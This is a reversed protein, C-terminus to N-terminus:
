TMGKGHCRGIDEMDWTQTVCFYAVHERKIFDFFDASRLEGHVAARMDIWLPVLYLTADHLVRERSFQVRLFEFPALVIVSLNAM